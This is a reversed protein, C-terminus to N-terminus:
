SEHNVEEKPKETEKPQEFGMKSIWEETGASAAWMNFNNEFKQKIEIPLADFKDRQDAMLNYMEHYSTPLQTADIYVGRNHLLQTDGAFYRSLISHVDTEDKYSQIEAYTDTEGDQELYFRGNEDIKEIFHPEMENGPNNEPAPPKEGYPTYIKIM